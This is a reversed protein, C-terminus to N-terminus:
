PRTGGCIYHLWQGRVTARKLSFVRVLQSDFDDWFLIDERLFPDYPFNPVSESEIVPEITRAVMLLGGM